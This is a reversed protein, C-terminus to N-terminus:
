KLNNLDNELRKLFTEEGDDGSVLWDIRHAYIQARKLIEVAVKFKEIVEAPYEYHFNDHDKSFDYYEWSREEKTKEKGNKDILSQITDAITEIRYQDYNFHGGSM